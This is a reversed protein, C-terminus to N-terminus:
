NAPNVKQEEYEMGQLHREPALRWFAFLPMIILVAFKFIFKNRSVDFWQGDKKIPCWIAAIYL